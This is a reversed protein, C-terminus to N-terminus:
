FRGKELIKCIVADRGSLAIADAEKMWDKLQKSLEPLARKFHIWDSNQESFDDPERWSFALKGAVFSKAERSNSYSPGFLLPVGCAAPELVSHIKKNNKAGVYALDAGRYSYMLMGVVDMLLAPAAKLAEKSARSYTVLGVGEWSDSMRSVTSPNVDHPFLLLKWDAGLNNMLNRLAPLDHPYVSGAVLLKPFEGRFDPLDVHALTQQLSSSVRFDGSVFSISRLADTLGTPICDESQWGIAEFQELARRWPGGFKRLWFPIGPSYACCLFMPIRQEHCLEMMNLWTESKILVGSAPNFHRLFARMAGRTDSPLAVIVDAFGKPRESLFGSPSYFSLVIPTAPIEERLKTLLPRAQEFEGLSACHVWVPRGTLPPYAKRQMQVRAAASGSFLAACKEACAYLHIVVQYALRLANTGLSL